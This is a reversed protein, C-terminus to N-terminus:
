KHVKKHRTLTSLDGFAKTCGLFDCAFPREGTHTRYHISLATSQVFSRTCSSWSCKYPKEGTHIRRHRCLDSSTSFSKNCYTYKCRYTKKFAREYPPSDYFLGRSKLHETSPNLIYRLSMQKLM